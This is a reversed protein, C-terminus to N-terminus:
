DKESGGNTDFVKLAEFGNMVCDKIKGFNLFLLAMKLLIIGYEPINM